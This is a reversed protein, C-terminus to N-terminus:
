CVPENEEEKKASAEKIGEIVKPLIQHVDGIIGYKAVNFISARPDKNIAIITEAGEMGVIHQVAGSIACGMYLKPRVTAGSQGIQKEKPKLGLDIAARTAGVGGGLLDAVEDLMAFGVSDKMGRGGAIIVDCNELRDKSQVKNMHRSLIKVRGATAPLAVTEQIVQPAAGVRCTAKKMVNPRVTAMQPRHAPTMIDAMINGGFAPRTQVLNREENISLATCDATLGVHLEAAVRPALDRGAFNSPYLIISPKYKKSLNIMVNAFIDTNYDRHQQSKAVYIKDAGHASIDGFFKEVNDGILVACLEEGLQDALERGKTLLEYCVQRMKLTNTNASLYLEMFVWVGKYSNIDNMM